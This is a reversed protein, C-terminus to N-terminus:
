ENIGGHHWGETDAFSVGPHGAPKVLLTGAGSSTAQPRSASVQQSANRFYGLTAAAAATQKLFERRKM